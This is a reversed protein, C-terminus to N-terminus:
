GHLIQKVVKKDTEDVSGAAVITKGSLIQNKIAYKRGCKSCTSISSSVANSNAIISVSNMSLYNGCECKVYINSSM